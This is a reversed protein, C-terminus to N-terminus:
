PLRIADSLKCGETLWCRRDSSTKAIVGCRQEEVRAVAVALVRVPMEGAVGPDELGIGIGAKAIEVVGLAFGAWDGLSGAPAVATAFEEFEGIEAFRWQGDFRHAADVRDEGDLALDIAGCGLM